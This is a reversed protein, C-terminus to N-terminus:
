YMIFKQWEENSINPPPGSSPNEEWLGKLHLREYKLACRVVEKLKPILLENGVYKFEVDLDVKFDALDQPNQNKVLVISVDM